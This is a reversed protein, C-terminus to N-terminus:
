NGLKAKRLQGALRWWGAMKMETREGDVEFATGVLAMGRSMTQMEFEVVMEDFADLGTHGVQVGHEGPTLTLRPGDGDYAVDFGNGALECVFAEFREAKNGVVIPADRLTDLKAKVAECRAEEIVRRAAFYRDAVERKFREEVDPAREVIEAPASNYIREYTRMRDAPSAKSLDGELRDVLNKALRKEGERAVAHFASEASGGASSGAGVRGLPGRSRSVRRLRERHKAFAEKEAMLAELEALDQLDDLDARVREALKRALADAADLVVKAQRGAFGKGGGDARAVSLAHEVMDNFGAVTPEGSAVIEDVRAELDARNKKMKQVAAHFAELKDAGKFFRETDVVPVWKGAAKREAHDKREKRGCGRFQETVAALDTDSWTWFPPWDGSRNLKDRTPLMANWSSFPTRGAKGLDMLDGAITPTIKNRSDMRAVDKAAFGVAECLPQEAAASSASVACVFLVTSALNRFVNV